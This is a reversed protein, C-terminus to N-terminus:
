LKIRGSKITGGNSDVARWTYARLNDDIVVPIGHIAEGTWVVGLGGGLFMMTQLETRATPSMRISVIRPPAVRSPMTGALASGAIIAGRRSEVYDRLVELMDIGDPM